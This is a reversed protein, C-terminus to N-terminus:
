CEKIPWALVSEEVFSADIEDLVPEPTDFLEVGEEQFTPDSLDIYEFGVDVEVYVIYTTQPQMARRLYSFFAVGPADMPFQSPRLVVLILNNSMLNDLVLLLPNVKAPLNSPTPPIEQLERTDLYDALVKGGTAGPAQARDWFARIDAPFGSIEFEVVAKDNEDVGLYELDVLKNEFLLTSFYEGAIFSSDFSFGPLETSTPLRENLELLLFADTLPDGGHLVEGETVIINANPLLEYVNLNTVVQAVDGTRLIKEVTETAEEIIPVGTLSAVLNQISKLSPGQVYSDALANLFDKYLDSSEMFAQLAYGWHYWLYQVDFSGNYGWLAAERDIVEGDAGTIDRVPVLPNEFPDERFTLLGKELDFEYDVGSTYTLTPQIIRNFIFHCGKLKDPLPVSFSSREARIGYLHGEGYTHDDGYRIVAADLTSERFTLYFWNERHFVPTEQRSITAIAELYNLYAQGADLFTGRYYNKLFAPDQFISNWFTGLRGLMFDGRDYVNERYNLTAM